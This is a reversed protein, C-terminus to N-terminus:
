NYENYIELYIWTKIEPLILKSHNFLGSTQISFEQPKNIFVKLITSSM